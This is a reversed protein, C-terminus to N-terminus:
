YHVDFSTSMVKKLSSTLSTFFMTKGHTCWGCVQVFDKGKYVALTFFLSLFIYGNEVRLINRQYYAHPFKGKNCIILILFDYFFIWHGNQLIKLFILFVKFYRWNLKTFSFPFSLLVVFSIRFYMWSWNYSFLLTCFLPCDSVGFFLFYVLVIPVNWFSLPVM